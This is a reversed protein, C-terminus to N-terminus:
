SRAGCGSTASAPSRATRGTMSMHGMRRGTKPGLGARIMEDDQWLTGDFLVTAAGALRRESADTMGACGPIYVLRKGEVPDRPRRHRGGQRGAGAAVPRDGHYLPVKGPVEFLEVELGSGSGDAHRPEFARDLPVTERRVCEDSLVNFIPNATLVDLVRDSGYLTFAQRERMHLLGAIADVDAGTLIM